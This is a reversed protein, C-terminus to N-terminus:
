YKNLSSDPPLPNTVMANLKTLVRAWDKEDPVQNMLVYDKTLRYEAVYQSYNTILLDVSDDNLHKETLEDIKLYRIKHRQGLIQHAQARIYQVVLADGELLFLLSRAPAYYHFLIHSYLTLSFVVDDEYQNSLDLAQKNREFFYRIQHLEKAYSKKIAQKEEVLLKNLVPSIQDNLKRTLFFANFFTALKSQQSETFGNYKLFDSTLSEIEPWQNFHMFFVKELEPRDITRRSLLQYHLWSLEEEPLYVGYRDYILPQLAMLQQFDKEKRDILFLSVPISIHRRQRSREITIYLLYYFAATTYGSGLEYTRSQTQLMDILLDQLDKPPHLTHPTQAGEYYFDFFFRRIQEESGTITVPNSHLTLGYGDLAKQALTMFRRLTSESCNFFEALDAVSEQEGYFINGILEFLIEPELLSQKQEQYHLRDTEVFTYRNKHYTFQASTEFYQKLYGIDTILTRQSVNLQKSLDVINFQQEREVVNLVRLWRVTVPNSVFQLQLERM